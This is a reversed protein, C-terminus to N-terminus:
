DEVAHRGVGGSRDALRALKGYAVDCYHPIPAEVSGAEHVAMAPNKACLLYVPCARCPSRGVYQASRVEQVLREFAARLPLEKLDFEPTTTHTCPRLMGYPNITVSNTGCGCRFLRDDIPLIPPSPPLLAHGSDDGAACDEEGALGEVELDVIERPSLRYKTSSLDGNLRPHISTFLNFKLGLGEVLARIENLEGRNVTMAKTRITLPLGRDLLRQIGNRFLDFSGPVQALADFTEPRAGHCSVDITFPPDEALFDALSESITTGNSYLSIIFGRRKAEKYIHRFQPHVVAEGGTLTMWLAGADALQDLLHLIEALGLERRLRDLTNFPDTYCHLCHINCRYTIEFQVRTLQANSVSRGCIRASFDRYEEDRIPVPM